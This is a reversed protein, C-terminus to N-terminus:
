SVMKKLSGSITPLFLGSPRHPHCRRPPGPRRRLRWGRREAAPRLRSKRRIFARSRPRNRPVNRLEERTLQAPLLQLKRAKDVVLEM